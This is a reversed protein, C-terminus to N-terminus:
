AERIEGAGVFCRLGLEGALARRDPSLDTESIMWVQGPPYTEDALHKRAGAALKVLDRDSVAACRGLCVIEIAAAGRELRRGWALAVLGALGATGALATGALATGSAPDRADALRTGTLYTLAALLCVLGGAIRLRLSSPPLRRGRLTYLDPGVPLPAGELRVGARRLWPLCRRTVFPEPM